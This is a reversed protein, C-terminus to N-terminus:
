TAIFVIGNLLHRDAAAICSRTHPNAAAPMLGLVAIYAGNRPAHGQSERQAPLGGLIGIARLIEGDLKRALPRERRQGAM